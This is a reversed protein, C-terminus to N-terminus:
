GGRRAEVIKMFSRGRLEELSLGAAVAEAEALAGCSIGRLFFNLLGQGTAADDFVNGSLSAQAAKDVFSSLRAAADARGELPTDSQAADRRLRPPPQGGTKEALHGGPSRSDAGRARLRDPLGRGARM